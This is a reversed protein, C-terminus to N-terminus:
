HNAQFPCVDLLTALNQCLTAHVQDHRLVESVCCFLDDCCGFALRSRFRTPLQNPQGLGHKDYSPSAVLSHNGLCGLWSSNNASLWHVVIFTAKLWCFQASQLSWGHRIKLLGILLNLFFNTELSQGLSPGLQLNEQPKKM